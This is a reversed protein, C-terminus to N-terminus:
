INLKWGIAEKRGSVFNSYIGDVSILEKHTGKQVIEGNDLVIIQDAKRVTKLRHAIMIITKDNTLAEIANQLKLENEPDVNATAEDLIIIPADKLIARAISIRQKEGGSLSTGGEDLITNYGDPLKMIFEHCCAKKAAEVVEEHSAEQRGFKINNEITDAFLYVKQFVMSVNRMLSNLSFDRVDHGGISISGQDVDWFRVILNCMTTKGSGSAGIIATTTKEPITLDINKLVVKKEYAFNVNKFVINKNETIIESTGENMTPVSDIKNANDISTGALRLTSLGHGASELQDYIIFAIVLMLLCNVLEMLGNIYLLVSAVVIIVGFVKLIAQLMIAFPMIAKEMALNKKCSDEIAKNVKKSKLSDLNFAKMVSMGQITELVHEVLNAQAKQRNEADSQFKREQWVTVIIFLVMGIIIILGIRWEFITIAIAFVVSNIFGGFTTVLVTSATQEVDNLITTAIGTINGLSNENFYGMPIERLKDGLDIRKNAVMFYGAHVRQLQAFYSIVIRGVISIAMFCFGYLAVRTDKIEYILGDLIVYLAGFIFSNFIATLIGLLISKKINFQESGSFDWIKKFTELMVLGCGKGWYSGVM